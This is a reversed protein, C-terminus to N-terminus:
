DPLPGHAGENEVSFQQDSIRITIRTGRLSHIVANKVLNVVLISALEHDMTHKFKGSIEMEITKGQFEALESLEDIVNNFIIEFDIIGRNQFQQNDLKTLLLLAKNIKSLRLASQHAKIASQAHDKNLKSDALMLELHHIISTLPTQIEHSANETFSKLNSYSKRSNKVLMDVSQNLQVFESVDTKMPLIDPDSEIKFLNLRKLYKYFPKWIRKLVFHNISLITINLVCFLIVVAWFLGKILDDEEVMSSIIKLEYYKGNNEFATHLIRVPELKKEFPMYLLTDRYRDTISVAQTFPIARIAYNSEDFQSKYLISTDSAAKKIILLKYNDLGDDISDYIEHMMSYYFAVSWLTVIILQIVILYRFTKAFLKM